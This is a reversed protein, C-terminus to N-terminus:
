HQRLYAVTSASTGDPARHVVLGTADLVVSAGAITRRTMANHSESLANMLPARDQFKGGAVYVPFPLELALRVGQIGAPTADEAIGIVRRNGAAAAIERGVRGASQIGPCSMMSPPLFVVVSTGPGRVRELSTAQGREDTLPLDPIPQWSRYLDRLEFFGFAFALSLASVFFRQSLTASM